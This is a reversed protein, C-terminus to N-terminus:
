KILFNTRQKRRKAYIHSTDIESHGLFGQVFELDAGNDILHTAISHRLCHLTIEKKEIANSKTRGIIEKLVENAHDGTMRKGKNNLLFAPELQNHEKLYHPRENMLYDKLDNIVSDSMTVERRKMGKGSRVILIGNYFRIDITNLERLENRRLGCGYAISLIARERKTICSKYLLQIEEVSLIEREKKTARSYSPIVVTCDIQGTEILYDSLLRISFLHQNIYSESLTGAKLKNPRHTIYEYYDIMVPTEIRKLKTIGQLELWLLFEKVCAQYMGKGKIAFNKSRIEKDFEHLLVRFTSSQLDEKINIIQIKNEMQKQMMVIPRRYVSGPNQFALM